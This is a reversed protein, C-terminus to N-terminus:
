GLGEQRRVRTVRVVHVRGLPRLMQVAERVQADTVCVQRVRKRHEWESPLCHVVGRPQDVLARTGYPDDTLECWVYRFVSVIRAKSM